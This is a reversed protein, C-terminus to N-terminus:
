IAQALEKVRDSMDIYLETTRLDAHRALDKVDKLSCGLENCQRALNTIFTRRGSHSSCGKFGNNSYLRHLYVTLANATMPKGRDGLIITKGKNMEKNQIAVLCGHVMKHLIINGPVSGKTINSPLHILTGVPLVKGEADTVADWPLKAIESARLGCKFSFALITLCRLNDYRKAAVKLLRGFQSTSLTKAKKISM